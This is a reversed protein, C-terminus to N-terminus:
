QLACTYDVILYNHDYYIPDTPGLEEMSANVSCSGLGNCLNKVHQKAPFSASSTMDLPTKTCTTQDFRGFKATVIEVKGNEAPKVRCEYTVQIINDDSYYHQFMEANSIPLKCQELYDCILKIWFIMGSHLSNEKLATAPKTRDTCDADSKVGSDVGTVEILQGPPAIITLRTCLM